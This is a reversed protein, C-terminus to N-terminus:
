LVRKDLFSLTNEIPIFRSIILITLVVITIRIIDNKITAM